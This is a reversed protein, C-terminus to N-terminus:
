LKWTRIHLLLTDTLDKVQIESVRGAGTRLCFYAGVSAPGIGLRSTGVSAGKCHTYGPASSGYLSIKGGGEPTLYRETDSVQDFKLDAGSTTVNGTDADLDDNPVLLDSTNVILVPAPTPTPNPKPTATPRPTIRPTAPPKTAPAKTPPPKVSPGASPLTSPEPSGSALEGFSADPSLGPEPSPSPMLSGVATLLSLSSSSTRGSSAGVASIMLSAGAVSPVTLPLDFSGSQDAIVRVTGGGTFTVDVSEGPVFGSGLVHILDGPGGLSSSLTMSALTTTKGGFVGVVLIAAVALAALAIPFVRVPSGRADLVWSRLRAVASALAATSSTPATGSAAPAGSSAGSATSAASVSAFAAAGAAVAAAREGPLNTLDPVITRDIVTSAAHEPAISFLVGDPARTYLVPTGWELTGSISVAIGKRAESVASDVPIGDAIAEYFSRSFEIAALDTIEYQMAVVAPTGQRVLSAATSSFVDTDEARASDCSNLVALRLPDHDGLLLGLETASLRHARHNDDVLAILGEGRAEDFGGHGIFHFIHWPGHRLSDQLDRWTGNPVWSLEVLGHERLRGLAQELREKERTVDLPDLNVPDAILGLVRLPPKVALPEIPQSLATYRVLPTTASLALFAGRRRDYLFEWPLAALEPVNVRLKVRLGMDRARAKSRSVDFRNVIDGAFLADWLETGFQRVLQTEPLEIRRRGRGSKLLALQLAQLRNQLALTDLPFTMSGSAEGAPSRLVRTAYSGDSGTTIELEFDLYDV